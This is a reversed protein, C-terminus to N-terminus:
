RLVLRLLGEGLDWRVTRALTKYPNRPLVLKLLGSRLPAIYQMGATPVWKKELSVDM